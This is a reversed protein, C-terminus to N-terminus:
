IHKLHSSDTTDCVLHSSKRKRKWEICRMVPQVTLEHDVHGWVIMFRGKQIMNPKATSQWFQTDWIQIDQQNSHISLIDELDSDSDSDSESDISTRHHIGTLSAFQSATLDETHIDHTSSNRIFKETAAAMTTHHWEEEYRKERSLKYSLRHWRKRMMSIM